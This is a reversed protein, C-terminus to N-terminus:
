KSREKAVKPTPPVVKQLIGEFTLTVAYTFKDGLDGTLNYESIFAIGSYSPFGPTVFDYRLKYSWPEGTLFKPELWDHSDQRWIGVFSLSGEGMLGPKFTRTLDHINPTTTQAAEHSTFDVKDWSRNFENLEFIEEFRTWSAPPLTAVDGYYLEVGIYPQGQSRYHAM